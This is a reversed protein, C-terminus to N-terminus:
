GDRSGTAGAAKRYWADFASAVVKPDLKVRWEEGLRRAATGAHPDSLISETADAIASPDPECIRGGGSAPVVDRIGGGDRCAVVPVGSMLAEAAVLGFGEGRAPFLMVSADGIAAPVSEPPLVGMFEVQNGLKLEAALAELKQRDPGDGIIRLQEVRGRDRLLALAQLSLDVRKQQTLRTVMVLGGSRASWRDFRSVDVPMPQVQDQPVHCGTAREITDALSASVATVLRARRFIPTAVWRALASRDLLAGDTGHVTLLLPVGRPAALGGPVWWHAHVLDAGQEIEAQSARRLSRWLGVLRKWGNVKRIADQMNGQYALTEETADAYRIRRVPIGEFEPEGVEGGDSPALVRIDHGLDILAQALTALFSGSLDGSWRPFNHTLFVVRM